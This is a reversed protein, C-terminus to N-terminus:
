RKAKLEGLCLLIMGVIVFGLALFIAWLKNRGASIMLFFPGICLFLSSGLIILVLALRNKVEKMAQGIVMLGAILFIFIALGM